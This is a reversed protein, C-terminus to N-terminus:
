TCPKGFHWLSPMLGSSTKGCHLACVIFVKWSCSATYFSSLEVVSIEANILIGRSCVDICMTDDSPGTSINEYRVM